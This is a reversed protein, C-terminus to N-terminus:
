PSIAAKTDNSARWAPGNETCGGEAYREVPMHHQATPPDLDGFAEECMGRAHEVLARASPTASYVFLQGKYLENRRRRDSLTPDFYIANM